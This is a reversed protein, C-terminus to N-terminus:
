AAQRAAIARVFADEIRIGDPVILLQHEEGVPAPRILLRCPSHHRRLHVFPILGSTRSFPQRIPDKCAPCTLYVLHARLLSPPIEGHGSLGGRPPQVMAGLIIREDKPRM